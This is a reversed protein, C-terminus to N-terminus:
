HCYLRFAKEFQFDFQFLSLFILHVNLRVSLYITRAELFAIAVNERAGM